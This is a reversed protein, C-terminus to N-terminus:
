EWVMRTSITKMTWSHLWCCGRWGWRLAWEARCCEMPSGAAQGCCPSDIGSARSVAHATLLLRLTSTVTMQARSFVQFSKQKLKWGLIICNGSRIREWLLLDSHMQLSVHIWSSKIVMRHKHVIWPSLLNHHNPEIRFSFSSICVCVKLFSWLM